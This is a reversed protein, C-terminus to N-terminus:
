VRFPRGYATQQLLRELEEEPIRIRNAVPIFASIEDRQIMTLITRRNLNLAAAVQEPTYFKRLEGKSNTALKMIRFKFKQRARAACISSPSGFRMRSLGDSLKWSM